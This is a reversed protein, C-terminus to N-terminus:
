DERNLFLSTLLAAVGAGLLFKGTSESVRTPPRGHFVTQGQSQITRVATEVQRYLESTPQGVLIAFQELQIVHIPVLGKEIKAWASQTTLGLADAVQTQSLGARIRAQHLAWGVVATFPVQPLESM